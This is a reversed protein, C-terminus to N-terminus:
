AGGASGTYFEGAGRFCCFVPVGIFQLLQCFYEFVPAKPDYPMTLIHFLVPLIITLNACLSLALRKQHFDCIQLFDHEPHEKYSVRKVVNRTQGMFTSTLLSDRLRFFPVSHM